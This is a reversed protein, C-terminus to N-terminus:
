QYVALLSLYMAPGELWMMEAGAPPGDRELKRRQDRPLQSYVPLGPLPKWHGSDWTTIVKGVVHAYGDVPLSSPIQAMFRSDDDLDGLIISTGNMAAGFEAIADLTGDEFQEFGTPKGTLKGITKIFPLMGLIGSSASLQSVDAPYVEAAFEVINGTRLGSRQDPDAELDFWGFQESDGEVLSLLREFRAPGDDDYDQSEADVTTKGLGFTAIKADLAVKRERDMSGSRSSVRRLGDEVQSIYQSLQPQDLYLFNRLVGAGILTPRLAWATCSVTYCYKVGM